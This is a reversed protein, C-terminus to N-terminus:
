YLTILISLLPDLIYADTFFLVVSVILVAAWGLVDEIMHWSVVRANLGAEGRLRWAAAGNVLIGIVAFLFMGPANTPEPNLLRPIVRSLVLLSGTVMVITNILASLLSFRGYGYSFQSTSGKQAKRELLWALGLSFSDGLDM